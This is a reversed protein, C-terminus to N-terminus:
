GCCFGDRGQGLSRHCKSSLSVLITVLKGKMAASLKAKRRAKTAEGSHEVGARPELQNKPDIRHKEKLLSEYKSEEPNDLGKNSDKVFKAAYQDILSRAMAAVKIEFTASLRGDNQMLNNM